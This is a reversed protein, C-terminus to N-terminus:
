YEELLKNAIMSFSGFVIEPMANPLSDVSMYKGTLVRYSPIGLKAAALMDAYPDDGVVVMDSIDVAMEKAAFEYPVVSPKPANHEMCYVVSDVLSDLGLAAVKKKQVSALGDTVIALKFRNRLKKLAKDVNHYLQISPEHKRYVNILESIDPRNTGFHSMTRNFAGTRGYKFFQYMIQNFIADFDLDDNLTAIAETVAMFGSKVYQTESFLTDDLDIAIAKM